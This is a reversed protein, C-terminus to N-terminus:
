LTRRRVLVIRLLVLVYHYRNVRLVTNENKGEGGEVVEEQHDLWSWM